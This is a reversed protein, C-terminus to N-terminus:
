LILFKESYENFVFKGLHLPTNGNKDNKMNKDVGNDLLVELVDM